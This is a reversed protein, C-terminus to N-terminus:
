PSRAHLGRPPPASLGTMTDDHEKLVLRIRLVHPYPLLGLAQDAGVVAATMSAARM